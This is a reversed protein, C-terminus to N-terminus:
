GGGEGRARLVAELLIRDEPHTLKINAGEGPVLVPQYGVAEMAAAEDTVRHGQKRASDLAARLRGLPFCQPTQAAWLHARDVTGTSVGEHARKLTDSVAVALLGGARGTAIDVLQRVARASVAPRAADHVLVRDGPGAGAALLADLGAKVSDSREAGGICTRVRPDAAVALSRWRADGRTLAVVVGAIGELALMARVSWDLVPRGALTQYQKPGAGGFREGRGAAPIVAWIRESNTM